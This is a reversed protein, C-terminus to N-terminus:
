SPARERQGAPGQPCTQLHRVLFTRAAELTVFAQRWVTRCRGCRATANDQSSRQECWSDTAVHYNNPLLTEMAMAGELLDDAHQSRQLWLPVDPSM